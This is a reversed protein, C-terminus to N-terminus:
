GEIRTLPGTGKLSIQANVMGESGAELSFETVIAMGEYRLNSVSIFRVKVTYGNLMADELKEFGTDNFQLLGDTEMTWEYHSTDFEKADGSDKNTTEITDRSIKINGGKQGAVRTWVPAQDTGTNVEIVFAKGKVFAM